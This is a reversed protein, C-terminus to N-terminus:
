TKGKEQKIETVFNGETNFNFTRGTPKMGLIGNEREDLRKEKHWGKITNYKWDTEYEFLTINKPEFEVEVMTLGYWDDLFDEEDSASIDEPVSSIDGIVLYKQGNLHELDAGNDILWQLFMPEDGQTSGFAFDPFPQNPNITITKTYTPKKM